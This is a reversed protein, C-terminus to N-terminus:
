NWRYYAILGLFILLQAGMVLFYFKRPTLWGSERPRYRSFDETDRASHASSGGAEDARQIQALGRVVLVVGVLALIALPVGLVLPAFNGPIAVDDHSGFIQRRGIYLCGTAFIFVCPGLLYASIRPLWNGLAMALGLILAFVLVAMLIFDM